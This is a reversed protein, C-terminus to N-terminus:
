DAEVYEFIDHNIYACIVADFAQALIIGAISLQLVRKRGYTDAAMGCPAAALFSMFSEFAIIWSRLLSLENDECAYNDLVHTDNMNPKHCLIDEQIQNIPRIILTKGIGVFFLLLLCQVIIALRSIPANGVVPERADDVHHTARLLPAQEGDQSSAM